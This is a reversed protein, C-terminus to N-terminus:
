PEGKDRALDLLWWSFWMVGLVIGGVVLWFALQITRTLSQWFDSM